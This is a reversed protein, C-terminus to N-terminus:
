NADALGLSRIRWEGLVRGRPLSLDSDTETEYILEKTNHTLNWMYPIDYSIQRESKSQKTHDDGPGDM